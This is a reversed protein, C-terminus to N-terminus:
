HKIAIITTDDQCVNLVVLLDHQQIEIQDVSKM